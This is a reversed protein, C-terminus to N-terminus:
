TVVIRGKCNLLLKCADVFNEDIRSQLATIEALETTVVERGLAQFDFSPFDTKNTSSM